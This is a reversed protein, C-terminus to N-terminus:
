APQLKLSSRRPHNAWFQDLAGKIGACVATWCEAANWKALAKGRM